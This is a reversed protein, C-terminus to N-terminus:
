VAADRNIETADVAIVLIEKAGQESASPIISVIRIKPSSFFNIFVASDGVHLNSGSMSLHVFYCHASVQSPWPIYILTFIHILTIIFLM